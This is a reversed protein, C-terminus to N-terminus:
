RSGRGKPSTTSPATSSGIIRHQSGGDTRHRHGACPQALPERHQGHRHIRQHDAAGRQGQLLHREANRNRNGSHRLRLTRMLIMAPSASPPPACIGAACQSCLHSPLDHQWRRGGAVDPQSTVTFDAAHAGGSWWRPTGALNLPLNGTNQITFDAHGPRRGSGFDTHNAVCSIHIWGPHVRWQRHHQHRPFQAQSRPGPHPRRERDAWPGPSVSELAVLPTTNVAVAVLRNTTTNDGLQGYSNYGWAAVTCTRASPWVTAM